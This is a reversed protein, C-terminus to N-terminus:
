GSRFHLTEKQTSILLSVSDRKTLLPLALSRQKRRCHSILMTQSSPLKLEGFSHAEASLKLEGFSYRWAEVFNRLSNVSCEYVKYM